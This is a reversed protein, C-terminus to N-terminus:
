PLPPPLEGAIRLFPVPEDFGKLRASAREVPLDRLLAAVAPEAALAESLVIDGGRSQGQLRAALNVTGGFYDLRENLTVAICPGGHLGIKLLIPGDPNEANFGAISQQAARAAALAQVPDAFAAMIADGITKVVAGDHDRVLRGLFAFHERVLHYARADGIRGYLATSAALDTFLLTVRRVAVEDGPRLVQDSFLDRFAQLATVRDATLAETVWTRDEVVFTRAWPTRNVLELAGIPAPAGAEVTREGLIVAPFGAGEALEVDLEPGKELSRLRYPGPALRAEIRRTAGAPVTVHVKIHPTSMPGLLCYEGFVIPRVAEAPRFSLEVNSSFDRDYDINCTDCHAGAPLRDLAATGAKGVRCRPCLLEWSLELLGARTAELCLEILHREPLQWRRALAIPRIRALDVEQASLLFDALRRALGHGNGSAEIAEVMREVRQRRAADVPPAQYDYPRDRAGQAFRGAQEALRAFSEGAAKFFVTALILRGVPGAPEAELRYEATCGGGEAPTLRFTACLRSLPGRSFVRCHEFWGDSVWNVPLERWALHFPGQKATATYLVSGDPQPTEEIRHKPLGAAENFRATDALVPWVAGIPADFRWHWSRTRARAM